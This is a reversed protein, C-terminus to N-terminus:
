QKPALCSLSNPDQSIAKRNTLNQYIASFEAASVSEVRRAQDQSFSAAASNNLDHNGPIVWVDIGAETLRRLKQALKQHSLKEGNFTLDGSLIVAQPKKM